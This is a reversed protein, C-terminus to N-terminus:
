STSFCRPSSSGPSRGCATFFATAPPPWRWRHGAHRLRDRRRSRRAGRHHARRRAGEDAARGARHLFVRDSHGRGRGVALPQRRGSCLSADLHAVSNGGEFLHKRAAVAILPRHHLRRGSLRDVPVARGRADVPRDRLHPQALLRRHLGGAARGESHAARAREAGAHHLGQRRGLRLVRREAPLVATEACAEAIARLKGELGMKRGSCTLHM